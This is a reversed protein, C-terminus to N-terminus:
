NVVLVRTLNMSFPAGPVIRRTLRAAHTGHDRAHAAARGDVDVRPAQVIIVRSVSMDADITRPHTAVMAGTSVLM